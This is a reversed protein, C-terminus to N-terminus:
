RRTFASTAVTRSRSAPSSSSPSCAWARSGVWVVPSSPLAGRTDPGNDSRMYSPLGNCWFLAELCYKVDELKPRVLARCELLARSFVDNVTLPDCRTGDAVRFWRKYDISWVYNPGQAEVVPPGGCRRRDRRKRPRVLGARKHIVDVTSRAPLEDGLGERELVALIKKSGWPPHAKLVRLVGAEMGPPTQNPRRLPARSRSWPAEPGEEKYRKLLKYGTKRSIGNQACLEPLTLDGRECAAM